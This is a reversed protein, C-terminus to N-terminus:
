TGLRDRTPSLRLPALMFAFFSTRMETLNQAKQRTKSRKKPNNPCGGSMVRGTPRRFSARTRMAVASTTTHAHRERTTSAAAGEM